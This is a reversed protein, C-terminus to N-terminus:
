RPGRPGPPSATRSEIAKQTAAPVSSLFDYGSQREIEDISVLYQSWNTGSVRNDNPMIVAYIDSAPTVDGSGQGPDLVVIIKFNARPVEEGGPLTLPEHDFLGGAVIFVQQHGRALKREYNELQEWPGVNLARRQPQVNTMVFTEQNADADATRDGSPCMHGRQYDTHTYDRSRPGSMEAPLLPDPHFNKSRPTQGLDEAVLRWAVWNPVHRNPNYSVVFVRHDLRLDDSPDADQPEGLALHISGPTHPAAPSVRGVGALPLPPGCAAAGVAVLAIAVRLVALWRAPGRAKSGALVV